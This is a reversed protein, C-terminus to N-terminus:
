TYDRPGMQRVWKPYEEPTIDGVILNPSKQHNQSELFHTLDGPTAFLFFAM